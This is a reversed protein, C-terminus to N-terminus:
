KKLKNTKWLVMLEAIEKDVGTTDIKFRNRFPSIKHGAVCFTKILNVMFKSPGSMAATKEIIRLSDDDFGGFFALVPFYIFFPGTFIGIVIGIISSVIKSHFLNEIPPLVYNMMELVYIAEVIAAIGPAILSQWVNLGKMHFVKKDFYLIGFVARVVMGVGPPVVLALWDFHFWVLMVYLLFIYTSQEIATLLINIEPKGVGQFLGDNVGSLMIALQFFINVQLIPVVLFYNSGVIVGLLLSGNFLLGVMFFGTVFNWKYAQAIYYQSLRTKGNLYSESITTTINLQFTVVMQSLTTGLTYMGLISAYNPMYTTVLIIGILNAAPYILGSMMARMGFSLCNKIVKRDFEARYLDRIRYTPDIIKLVPVLFKASVFAAVFDKLYYGLLAGITAGMMEGLQPYLDGIYRFLFIFLIQMGNQFIQTQIFGVLNAKDYRQYAQLAGQFVWLQGPYQVTSYIAIFWAAYSLNSYPVFFLAWMSIGTTQALGTIMHYWTYFQLYKISGKPNKINEEAVYRQLANSTGAGIVTFLLSFMNFITQQYGIGAPFPFVINPIFWVTLVVGFGAAIIIFILNYFIGALPRHFGIQIWDDEKESPTELTDVKEASPEVTDVKEGQDNLLRIRM